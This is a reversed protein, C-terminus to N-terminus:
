GGCGGVTVKIQQTAKSLKGGAKVVAHVDSTEQMKIRASYFGGAGMLNVFTTMPAPNAVAVIAIAEAPLSTEVKIPVVAGNEAQLPAKIKIDGSDAMDSAGLAAKLADGPTIETKFAAEPWAALVQSPKLLGAGAAVALASSALSGKLFTRRKM